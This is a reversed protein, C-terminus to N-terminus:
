QRLGRQITEYDPHEPRLTGHRIFFDINALNCNFKFEFSEDVIRMVEEVPLLRFESIEGDANVPEFDAPLELDWCYMLDPKLGAAVEMRYSVYGVPIATRALAAPVSAEERAEKVVNEFLSIGVPQGGAIMNDLKGPSIPRDAARVGIWMRLGDRDRVFGNVHVGYARTGFFEAAAREIDFAHPGGWPGGVPYAENRWGSVVGDASLADIVTAVARTREDYSTLGDALRVVDESVSFVEAFGTLREANEHRIHGVTEGDVVFPRFGSLDHANCREIHDIFGMRRNHWLREGAADPADGPTPGSRACFAIHVVVANRGM